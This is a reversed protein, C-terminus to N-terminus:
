GPYAPAWARELVRWGYDTESDHVYLQQGEGASVMISSGPAAAVAEVSQAIPLEKQDSGDVPVQVLRGQDGQATGLVTLQTIDSWALDSMASMGTPVERLGRVALGSGRDVYGVKLVTVSDEEVLLAVRAGDRSVQVAQVTGEQVGPARVQGVSGDPELYRLSNAAPADEIFWLKGTRDWSLSRIGYGRHIPESPRGSPAYVWLERGEDTVVALRDLPEIPTGDRESRGGAPLVAPAVQEPDDAGGPLQGLPVVGDDTVRVIEGDRIAYANSAANVVEPAYRAPPTIQEGLDGIPLPRSNVTIRVAQVGVQELTWALQGAVQIRVSDKEELFSPDLDVTAVGDDVSVATGAMDLGRPVASRLVPDMVGTPGDLLAKVLRTEIGTGTALYIPDPVLIESENDFFYLNYSEFGSRLLASSRLLTEPPNMIRWEGNEKALEFTKEYRGSAVQWSGDPRIRGTQAASYELRTPDPGSRLDDGEIVTVGRPSWTDRVQSGLFQRAGAHNQSDQAMAEIFGNVVQQSTFGPQPTVPPVEVGDETSASGLDDHWIPGTTPLRACGALTIPGLVLLLVTVVGPIRTQRRM